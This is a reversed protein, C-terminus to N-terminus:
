LCKAMGLVKFCLHILLTIIFIGGKQTVPFTLLFTHLMLLSLLATLHLALKLLFSRAALVIKRSYSKYCFKVCWKLKWQRQQWLLDLNSLYISLVHVKKLSITYGSFSNRGSSVKFSLSDWWYKLEKSNFVSVVLFSFDARSQKGYYRRWYIGCCTIWFYMHLISWKSPLTLFALFIVM